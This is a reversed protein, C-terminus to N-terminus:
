GEPGGEAPIVVIDGFPPRVKPEAPCVWLVPYPPEEPFRDCELDTFWLLCAPSLGMAEVEEPVPRYDTGGGGVPVPTFPMDQRTYVAYGGVKVDHYLVFLTTDFDSLMGSLEACFRSLLHADVSGSADVALAVSALRAERRSPLYLGTHVHRRDPQTWTYDNDSCQEMFRSLIERWSLLPRVREKVLRALSAPMDGMRLAERSAQVLAMDAEQEAKERAADGMGDGLLPHDRVEGSFPKETDRERGKPKKGAAAGKEGLAGRGKEGARPSASAKDNERGKEGGLGASGEAALSVEEGEESIGKMRHSPGDQLRALWSYIEDASRDAYEPRFAAGEPLSFGADLLVANVVYDCARNWLREDRERRRVHHGLAIHLVEHALSSILTKESVSAAYVPNCALTRGDAWLDACTGDCYLRMRLAISGFFPHELVLASRAKELAKLAAKEM